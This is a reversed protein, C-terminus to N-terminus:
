FPLRSKMFEIINDTRRIIGMLSLPIYRQTRAVLIWTTAVAAVVYGLAAGTEALWPIFIFYSALSMVFMQAGIVFSLRMHGLGMLINSEVSMLPVVFSLLAFIRLLQISETYRGQYIIGVLLHPLVVFLLTVPILGITLFLVAKEALTTLSSTEGRSSFRSTAPLVFMQVVQTVMEYVRVFVKASNYVAVQAPGSFISLIFSDAKSSFLSSVIGGLSYKGYDWMNQVVARAPFRTIKMMKRAFWVGALSSASLSVINIIVLDLATDFEHMRSVIWVLFPAGLFHMADMWFVERVLFRAQLLTMTFNRLFSAALMAPIYLLLPPLGVSNL